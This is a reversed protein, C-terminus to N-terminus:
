LSVSAHKFIKGKTKTRPQEVWDGKEKKKCKVNICYRSCIIEEKKSLNKARSIKYSIVLCQENYCEDREINHVSSSCHEYIYAFRKHTDEKNKPLTSTEKSLTSLNEEHRRVKTNCMLSNSIEKTLNSIIM